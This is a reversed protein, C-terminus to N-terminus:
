PLIRRLGNRGLRQSLEFVRLALDVDEGMKQDTAELQLTLRGSGVRLCKWTLELSSTACSIVEEERAQITAPSRNSISSNATSAFLTPPPCRTGGYSTPRFTRRSRIAPAPAPAPKAFYTMREIPPM